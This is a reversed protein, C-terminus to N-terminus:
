FLESLDRRGDVLAVIEVLGERPHYEYLVLYNGEVLMRLGSRIDNRLVCMEPTRRLLQIKENLRLLLRDAAKENHRAITRWIARFDEEARNSVILDAVEPV